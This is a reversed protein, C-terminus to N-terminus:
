NEGQANVVAEAIQQPDAAAAAASDAVNVSLGKGEAYTKEGALEDIITFYDLGREKCIRQRSTLQQAILIANANAEKQPDIWPFAGGIWEFYLDDLTMGEPLELVGDVIWLKMRWVTLAHLLNRLNDRKKEVSQQYLLLAQRAGSYNTHSEDYFSFPIDLAKLASQIVAILFAQFETAPQNSELFSADDDPDLQVIQPGSGFDFSIPESDDDGAPAGHKFKLAFMQALKMRALAFVKAEHIDKLDNIASALPSVGRVQDPRDRYAHQFVNNAKVIQSLRYSNLGGTRDSVAIFAATGEADVQVGHVYNKPDFSDQYDGLDSPVRVRDGEIIQLRGDNVKLVFCDGDTVALGEIMRIMQHLNFKGSVDCNFPRSYWDMLDEVRQNLKKATDAGWRDPDVQMKFTFDSVFDLHKRVAYAAISSNRRLDRAASLLKDRDQPLLLQDETRTDTRVERRRGSSTIAEYAKACWSVLSV